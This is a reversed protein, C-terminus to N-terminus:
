PSVRGGGGARDNAGRGPEGQAIPYHTVIFGALSKGILDSGRDDFHDATNEPEYGYDGMDLGDFIQSFSKVAFGSEEYLGADREEIFGTAIAPIRKGRCIAGFARVDRELHERGIVDHYRAPVQDKGRPPHPAHAPNKERARPTGVLGPSDLLLDPVYREVLPLVHKRGFGSYLAKKWARSLFVSAHISRNLWPWRPQVYNSIHEDNICYQLIVLDPAWQLAKTRLVELEQSMNYGPVGLNLVRVKKCTLSRLHSELRAPFAAEAASSGVSYAHSDGIVAIVFHESLSSPEFDADRMGLSNIQPYLPNLEFIM